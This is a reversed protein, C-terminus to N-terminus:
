SRFKKLRVGPGEGNEDVFVIGAAELASCVRGLADASVGQGVSVGPRIGMLRKLTEVSVGARRALDAQSISLMALAGRIQSPTVTM